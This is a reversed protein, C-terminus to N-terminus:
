GLPLQCPHLIRVLSCVAIIVIGIVISIRGNSVATLALGGTICGVASWGIQQITNLAAVIKNPYWGM